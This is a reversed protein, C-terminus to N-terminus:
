VFCSMQFAQRLAQGLALKWYVTTIVVAIPHVSSKQLPQCVARESSGLTPQGPSAGSPLMRSPPGREMTRM